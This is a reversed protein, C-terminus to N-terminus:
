GAKAMVSGQLADAFQNALKLSKFDEAWMEFGDKLVFYVGYFEPNDSQEVQGGRDIVGQVSVSGTWGYPSESLKEEVTIITDRETVFTQQNM